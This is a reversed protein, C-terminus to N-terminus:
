ASWLLAEEVLAGKKVGHAETYRVVQRKTTTSIFASIQTEAAQRGM